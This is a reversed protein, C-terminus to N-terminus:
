KGGFQDPKLQDSTTGSIMPFALKQYARDHNQGGATPNASGQPSAV